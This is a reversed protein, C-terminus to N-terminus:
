RYASGLSTIKTLKQSIGLSGVRVCVSPQIALAKIPTYEFSHLVNICVLRRSDQPSPSYDYWHDVASTLLIGQRVCPYKM